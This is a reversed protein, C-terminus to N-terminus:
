KLHNESYLGSIMEATKRMRAVLRRPEVLRVRLGLFRIRQLLYDEEHRFYHIIIRYVNDDGLEVDRDFASLASLVRHRDSPYAPNIEVVALARCAELSKTAENILTQQGSLDLIQVNRISRLPTFCVHRNALRMWVIYWERRAMNYELM